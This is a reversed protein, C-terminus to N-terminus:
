KSGLIELARRAGFAHAADLKSSLSLNPPLSKKFESWEEWLGTVKQPEPPKAYPRKYNRLRM